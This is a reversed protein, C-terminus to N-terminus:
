TPMTPTPMQEQFIRGMHHLLRSVSLMISPPKLNNWHDLFFQAYENGQAASQTFWYHAQKRDQKDLYLKGVLYPAGPEGGEAKSILKAAAEDRDSMPATDDQTVMWLERCGYSLDSFDTTEEMEEDEFTVKGMRINEAEQIVANKISRFEKQESLPPRQREKESYFDEIQCQLEWWVQYCEDIVPLQEM